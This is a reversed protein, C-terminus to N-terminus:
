DGREQFVYILGDRLFKEIVEKKPLDKENGSSLNGSKDFVLLNLHTSLHDLELRPIDKFSLDKQTIFIDEVIDKNHEGCIIYLEDTQYNREYYAKIEGQVETLNIDNRECFLMTVSRPCLNGNEEEKIYQSAYIFISIM